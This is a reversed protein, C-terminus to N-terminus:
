KKVLFLMRKGSRIKQLFGMKELQNLRFSAANQKKYKMLAKVDDATATGKRAM